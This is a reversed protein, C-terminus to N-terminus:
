VTVQIIKQSTGKSNTVELKVDYTGSYYYLHTPNQDISVNGDGFHWYYSLFDGTSNNIFSFEKPAIQNISFDATASLIDFNTTKTITSTADRWDTIVLTVDYQGYAPFTFIPNQQYSSAGVSTTWYYRKIGSATSGNTFQVSIPVSDLDSLTTYSFDASPPGVYPSIQIYNTKQKNVTGSPNAVIVNVTYNGPSTYTHSPDRLTSTTGDGFDWHISDLYNNCDLIFNVTMPDFGIQRNVTFNVTPPEYVVIIYNNKTISHTNLHSNYITLTVDYRGVSSYTHQPNQLNSVPTGDGFNWEWGTIESGISTDTFNTTLTDFGSVKDAIFDSIPLDYTKITILNTKLVSKVGEFPVTTQMTVSYVGPTNYIHGIKENKTNLNTGDGFNWSITGPDFGFCTETFEIEVPAFGSIRNVSFDILKVLNNTLQQRLIFNQSVEISGLFNCDVNPCIYYKKFDDHSSKPTLLQLLSSCEPCQANTGSLDCERYEIHKM